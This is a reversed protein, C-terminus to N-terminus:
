ELFSTNTAILFTKYMSTGNELFVYKRHDSVSGSGNGHDTTGPTIRCRDLDMAMTRPGGTHDSVSVSGNGHDTTGPTIRCRDLDMAM